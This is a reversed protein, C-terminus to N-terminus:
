KLSLAGKRPEDAFFALGPELQDYTNNELKYRGNERRLLYVSMRSGSTGADLIISYTM